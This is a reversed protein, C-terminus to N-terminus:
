DLRSQHPDFILALIFRWGRSNQGEKYKGKDEFTLVRFIIFSSLAINQLAVTPPRQNVFIVIIFKLDSTNDAIPSCSKVFCQKSSLLFHSFAYQLM